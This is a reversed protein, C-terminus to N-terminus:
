SVMFLTFHNQPKSIKLLLNEVEKKGNQTFCLLTLILKSTFCYTKVAVQGNLTFSKDVYDVDDVFDINEVAQNKRGTRLYIADIIHYAYACKISM